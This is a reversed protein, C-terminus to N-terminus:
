LFHFRQVGPSVTDIVISYKKMYHNDYNVNLSAPGKKVASRVPM